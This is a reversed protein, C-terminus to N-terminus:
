EVTLRKITLVDELTTALRMSMRGDAFGLTM